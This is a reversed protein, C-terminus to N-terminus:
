GSFTKVEDVDGDQKTGSRRFELRSVSEHHTLPHVLDSAESSKSIKDYESDKDEKHRFKFFTM